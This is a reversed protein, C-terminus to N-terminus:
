EFFGFLDLEDLFSLHWIYARNLRGSYQSEKAAMYFSLDEEQCEESDVDEYSRRKNRICCGCERTCHGRNWQRETTRARECCGCDRGCCGGRRACDERLWQCLYWEPDTRCSKFARGLIGAPMKGMNEGAIHVTDWYLNNLNELETEYEKLCAKKTVRKNKDDLEELVLSKQLAKLEEQVYIERQVVLRIANDTMIVIASWGLGEDLSQKPLNWFSLWRVVQALQFCGSEKLRSELLRMGTNDRIAKKPLSILIKVKNVFPWDSLLIDTLKLPDRIKKSKKLWDELASQQRKEKKVLYKLM